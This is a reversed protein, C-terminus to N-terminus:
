GAQLRRINIRGETPMSQNILRTWDSDTQKWLTRKLNMQTWQQKSQTWKLKEQTWQHQSTNM